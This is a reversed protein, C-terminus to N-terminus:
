SQRFKTLLLDTANISVFLYKSSVMQDQILAILPEFVITLKPGLVASAWFCLSKGSGTPAIVFTHKGELYAEIAQKQYEHFNEFGFLTRILLNLVEEFNSSMDLDPLESEQKVLYEHLGQRAYFYCLRCLGYASVKEFCTCAKCRSLSEFNQIHQYFSPTFRDKQMQVM